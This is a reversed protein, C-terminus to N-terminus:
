QSLQLYVLVVSNLQSYSKNFDSLIIDDAGRTGLM